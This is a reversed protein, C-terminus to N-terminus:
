FHVFTPKKAFLSEGINTIIKRRNGRRCSKIPSKEQPRLKIKRNHIEWVRGSNIYYRVIKQSYSVLM